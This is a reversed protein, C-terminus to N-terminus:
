IKLNNIVVEGVQEKNWPLYFDSQLFPYVLNTLRLIEKESLEEVYKLSLCVLSYLLYFHSINNQYFSLLAAENRTPRFVRETGILQSNILGLEETKKIIKESSDETLWM